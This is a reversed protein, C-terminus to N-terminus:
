WGGAPQGASEATPHPRGVAPRLLPIREAAESKAIGSRPFRIAEDDRM